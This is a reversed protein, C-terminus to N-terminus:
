LLDRRKLSGYLPVLDKRVNPAAHKSLSREIVVDVKKQLIDELSQALDIHEFLSISKKFRVLLDIDSTRKASGRATSGFIGAFEVGRTRLFPTIRKKIEKITM